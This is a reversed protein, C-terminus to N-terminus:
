HGNEARSYVWKWIRKIIEKINFTIGFMGPKIEVIESEGTEQTADVRDLIQNWILELSNLKTENLRYYITQMQEKPGQLSYASNSSDIMKIGIARIMACLDIEFKDIKDILSSPPNKILRKVHRCIKAIDDCFKNRDKQYSLPLNHLVLYAERVLEVPNQETQENNM